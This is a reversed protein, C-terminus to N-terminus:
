RLRSSIDFLSGDGTKHLKRLVNQHPMIMRQRSEKLIAKRLRPIRVMVGITSSSLHSKIKRQPFDYLGHKRYFLHDARFIGRMKYILDRFVLHGGVGLFTQPKAAGNETLHRLRRTFSELMATIQESEPYEDTVFGVLNMRSVAATAELIERLVPMQRLPGSIIYGIQKGMSVPRHGNCFSRDFFLKWRSSLYGDHIKGAYILADTSSIQELIVPFDDNYICTGDYGCRICGLCGGKLEYDHLNLTKVQLPSLSQFVEMMKALNHDQGTVDTILTVQKESEPSVKEVSGPQYSNSVPAAPTYKTELALNNKVCYFFDEAFHFLNKREKPKLLDNMAPSIGELYKMHWNGSIQHIYNHATHDYFHMSTSISTAYKGAFIEEEKREEVLEIFRKLQYPILFTYVPFCWILAEASSVEQMLQRFSTEDNELTKIKEGVNIVRFHHQPFCIELFHIYQRTVSLEGKPSGNLVVIEM